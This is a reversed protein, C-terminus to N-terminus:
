KPKKISLMLTGPIIASLFTEIITHGYLFLNENNELWKPFQVTIIVPFPSTVSAYSILTNRQIVERGSQM